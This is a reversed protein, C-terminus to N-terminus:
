ASAIKNSRRSLLFFSHCEQYIEPYTIVHQPLFTIIRDAPKIFRASKNQYCPVSVELSGALPFLQPLYASRMGCDLASRYPTACALMLNEQSTKIRHFLKGQAKAHLRKWHINLTIFHIYFLTSSKKLSHEMIYSITQLISYFGPPFM